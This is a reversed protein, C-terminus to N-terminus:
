FYAGRMPGWESCLWPYDVHPVAWPFGRVLWMICSECVLVHLHASVSKLVTRHWCPHSYWTGNSDQLQTLKGHLCLMVPFRSKRRKQLGPDSILHQCATNETPALHSRGSWRRVQTTRHSHYCFQWIDPDGKGTHGHVGGPTYRGTLNSLAMSCRHAESSSIADIQLSGTDLCPWMRLDPSWEKACSSRLGCSERYGNSPTREQHTHHASKAAKQRSVPWVQDISDAIKNLPRHGLGKQVWSQGERPPFPQTM